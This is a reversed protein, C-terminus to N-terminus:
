PRMSSACALWELWQVNRDVIPMCMRIDGGEEKLFQHRGESHSNILGSVIVLWKMRIWRRWVTCVSVIISPLRREVLILVTCPVCAPQAAAPLQRASRNNGPEDGALIGVHPWRGQVQVTLRGM